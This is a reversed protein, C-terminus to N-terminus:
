NVVVESFEVMWVIRHKTRRVGRSNAAAVFPRLVIQSWSKRLTVFPRRLPPAVNRRRYMKNSISKCTLWFYTRFHVLREAPQFVAGKSERWPNRGRSRWPPGRARGAKNTVDVSSPPCVVFLWQSSFDRRLMTQCGNKEAVFIDRFSINGRHSNLLRGVSHGAVFLVKSHEASINQRALWELSM